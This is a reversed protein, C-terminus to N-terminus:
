RENEKPPEGLIEALHNTHGEWMAEAVVAGEPGLQCQCLDCHPCILWGCDGCREADKGQFWEGCHFCKFRTPGAKLDAESVVVMGSLMDRITMRQGWDTEKLILECIKEALDAGRTPKM